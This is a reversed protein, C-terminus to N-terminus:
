DKKSKFINSDALESTWSNVLGRSSQSRTPKDAFQGTLLQSQHDLIYYLFLSLEYMVIQHWSNVTLKTRVSKIQLSIWGKAVAQLTVL